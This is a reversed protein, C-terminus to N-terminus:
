LPHEFSILISVKSSDKFEYIAKPDRALLKDLKGLFKNSIGWINTYKKLNGINKGHIYQLFINILTIYMYKMM